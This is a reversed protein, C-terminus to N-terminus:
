VPAPACAPLMVLPLSTWVIAIMSLLTLPGAFALSAETSGAEQVPAVLTRRIGLPLLSLATLAAITAVAGIWRVANGPAGPETCALAESGYLIFFHMAWVLPGALAPMCDVIPKPRANM